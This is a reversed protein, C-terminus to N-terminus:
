RSPLYMPIVHCSHIELAVSVRAHARRTFIGLCFVGVVPGGVVGFVSYFLQFSLFDLCLCSLKSTVPLISSRSLGFYCCFKLFIM